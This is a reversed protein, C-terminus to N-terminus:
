PDEEHLAPGGSSFGHVVSLSMWAVFFNERCKVTFHLKSMKSVCMMMKSQTVNWSRVSRLNFM